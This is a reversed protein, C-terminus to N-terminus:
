GHWTAYRGGEGERFPSSGWGCRAAVGLRRDHPAPRAPAGGAHEPDERQRRQDGPEYRVELGLPQPEVLEALLVHEPREHRAPPQRAADGPEPGRAEQQAVDPDGLWTPASCCRM